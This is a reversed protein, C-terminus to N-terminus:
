GIVNRNFNGYVNDVKNVSIFCAKDISVAVNRYDEIEYSSVVSELVFKEAQTYGGKVSYITVGHNFKSILAHRMAEGETTVISIRMFRYITHIKDLAIIHILLRVVTFVAVSINGAEIGGACIIILDVTLTFRAFPINKRLSVFQSLIDMGGSSAGGRLALGCGIGTLLGGLIALLLKEDKLGVFPDIGLEKFQELVFIIVVQLIVSTLSLIAFRNSVAKWGILFLPANLLAIFISKSITVGFRGFIKTLLQSIGTVGGAYFEGLDLIWVISICYIVTGLIMSLTMNLHRKNIKNLKVM